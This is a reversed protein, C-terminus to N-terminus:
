PKHTASSPVSTPKPAAVPGILKSMTFAVTLTVATGILTYWPFAIVVHLHPWNKPLNEQVLPSIWTMTALSCVMGTIVPAAAGRKWFVAMM